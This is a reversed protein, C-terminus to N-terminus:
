DAKPKWVKDAQLVVVPLFLGLSYWFRSYVRGTDEPKQLEMKEPSFLVLGLAVLAACPIAAQWPHRGYGVLLDLAMSGLWWCWRGSRLYEWISEKATPEWQERERRKEAIFAKDADAPYGQRFFFSELNSYVDRAYSSQNALWLLAEHSEPEKVAARIYKYTMGRMEIQTAVSPWSVSWLTITAFDADSFDVPGEFVAHQFLAIQGAKFGSFSAASEPNYFHATSAVFGCAINAFDFHATGEFVANKFFATNGVKM